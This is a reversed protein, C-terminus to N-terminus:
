GHKGVRKEMGGARERVREGAGALLEPSKDQKRARKRKHKRKKGRNHAETKAHM